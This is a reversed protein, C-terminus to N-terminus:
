SVAHFQIKYALDDNMGSLAGTVLTEGDASLSVSMGFHDDMEKGYISQGLQRYNMATDDWRFVRVQGANKGNTDNWPAGIALTKGDKSLAVAKGSSDGVADGRITEGLKTYASLTDDWGYINVLGMLKGNGEQSSSGVALTRGDGSLAISYEAVIFSGDPVIVGAQEFASTVENWSFIKVYGRNNTSNTASAALVKGDTSLVVSDGFKEDPGAGNINKSLPKYKSTTTARGYIKVQGSQKGNQASSPAGVALIHGDGSLATSWGASDTFSASHIRQIPVPGAETLGYVMVLGLQKDNFSSPAGVAMTTGDASLALSTGLHSADSEGWIYDGLQLWNVASGRSEKKEVEEEKAHFVTVKGRGVKGEESSYPSGVAVSMCDSSLAISRSSSEGSGRTINIGQSVENWILSSWPSPSSSAQQQQSNTDTQNVHNFDDRTGDDDDDYNDDNGEWSTTGYDDDEIDDVEEEEDKVVVAAAAEAAVEEVDEDGVKCECDRGLMQYFSLIADETHPLHYNTIFAKNNEFYCEWSCGPPFGKSSKVPKSISTKDSEDDETIIGASQENTTLTEENAEESKTDEADSSTGLDNAPEENENVSSWDSNDQEQQAIDKHTLEVIDHHPLPAHNHNDQPQHGDQHPLEVIDEHPLAAHNHHDQPQEQDSRTSIKGAGKVIALILLVPLVGLIIYKQYKKWWPSQSTHHYYDMGGQEDWPFSPVGPSEMRPFMMSTNMGNMDVPANSYSPMSRFTDDDDDGGGGAEEEDSADSSNFSKIAPEDSVDDGNNDFSIEWEDNDDDHHDDTTTNKKGFIGFRAAVKRRRADRQELQKASIEDISDNYINIPQCGDDVSSISITTQSSGLRDEAPWDGGGAAAEEMLRAARERAARREQQKLSKDFSDLM